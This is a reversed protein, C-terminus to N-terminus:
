KGILDVLVAQYQGLYRDLYWAETYQDVYTAGSKPVVYDPIGDVHVDNRLSPVKWTASFVEQGPRSAYWNLFVATANPNPAGKPEAIVSSGGLVAGAGDSMQGIALNKVGAQRFNEIETVLTALAIPYNGRQVWEVLQRSNNAITIDQTGFLQKIFDVGHLDALYSIGAQGPGNVRPDFSAIKGKYQPKLLDTWNAIEGPKIVDSNLLAWGFVYESGEFLYANGKDVWKLQGRTWNKVDTVGPLILQPKIEKMFGDNVFPIMGQGGFVIDITVQGARMERAIRTLQERGEGGLFDVAIGTDRKFAASMPVAMDPRGAIVLKGEKRGAELLKQWEPGAGDQWDAAWCPVSALVLCFILAGLTGRRM